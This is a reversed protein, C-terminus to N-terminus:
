GSGTKLSNSWDIPLCLVIKVLRSRRDTSEDLQIAFIGAPSSRIEQTVKEKIDDSMENIRRKVTMQCPYKSLIVHVQMDLFM